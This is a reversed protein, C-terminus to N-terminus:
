VQPGIIEVHGIFEFHADAPTAGTGDALFLPFTFAENNGPQDGTYTCEIQLEFQDTGVGIPSIASVTAALAANGPVVTGIASRIPVPEGVLITLGNAVPDGESRIQSIGLVPGNGLGATGMRLADGPTGGQAGGPNILREPAQIENPPTYQPSPGSGGAGNGTGFDIPAGQPTGTQSM